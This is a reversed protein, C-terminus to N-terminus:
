RQRAGECAAIRQASAAGLPAARPACLPPRWVQERIINLYQSKSNLFNGKDHRKKQRESNTGRLQPIPAM